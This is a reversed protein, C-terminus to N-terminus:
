NACAGGVDQMLEDVVKGFMHHVPVTPAAGPVSDM